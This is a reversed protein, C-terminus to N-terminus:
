AARRDLPALLGPSRRTPMAAQRDARRPRTPPPWLEGLALGAAFGLYVLCLSAGSLQREFGPSLAPPVLVLDVWAAAASLALADTLVASVAAAQPAIPPPRLLQRGEFVLSWFCSAGLHIVSGTATHRLSLGRAEFASGPWLWHSIANIPVTGDGRDHRGRLVLLLGSLLAGCAARRLMRRRMFARAEAM